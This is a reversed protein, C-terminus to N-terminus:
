RLRTIILIERKGRKFINIMICKVKVRKWRAIDKNIKEADRLVKEPFQTSIFYFDPKYDIRLTKYNLNLEKKIVQKIGQKNYKKWIDSLSSKRGRIEEALKYRNKIQALGYGTHKKGRSKRGKIEVFVLRRDKTLGFMDGYTGKQNIWLIKKRFILETHKEIKEQLKTESDILRVRDSKRGGAILYAFPEGIKIDVIKKM